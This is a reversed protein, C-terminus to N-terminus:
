SKPQIKSIKLRSNRSLSLFISIGRRGILTQIAYFEIILKL